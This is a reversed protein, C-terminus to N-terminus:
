ECPFCTFETYGLQLGFLLAIVKLDACINRKYTDYKLYQVLQKMNDDSEKIGFAHAIPISPLVTENHLFVANRSFKSSDICLRWEDSCHSM